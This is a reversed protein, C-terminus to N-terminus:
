FTTESSNVTKKKVCSINPIYASKFLCRCKKTTFAHDLDHCPTLMDSVVANKSDTGM